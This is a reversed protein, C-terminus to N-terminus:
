EFIQLQTTQRGIRTPNSTESRPRRALHPRSPHHSTCRLRFGAQTTSKVSVTESMSLRESRLSRAGCTSFRRRSRCTTAPHMHLAGNCKPVVCMCQRHCHPRRYLKDGGGRASMRQTRVRVVGCVIDTSKSISWDLDHMRGDM